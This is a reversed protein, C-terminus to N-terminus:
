LFFLIGDVCDKETLAAFAPFMVCWRNGLTVRVSEVARDCFSGDFIVKGFDLICLWAYLSFSALSTHQHYFGQSSFPVSQQNYRAKRSPVRLCFFLMLSYTAHVGEIKGSQLCLSLCASAMFEPWGNSVYSARDFWFLLLVPGSLHRM